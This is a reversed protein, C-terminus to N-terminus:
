TSRGTRAGAGLGPTRRSRPRRPRGPSPRERCPARAAPRRRPSARPAGPPPRSRGYGSSSSRRRVTTSRAAARRARRPAFPRARDCRCGRRGRPAARRAARPRRRREGRAGVGLHDGGQQGAVVRRDGVRDRPRHLPERAGVGDHGDCVTREDREAIGQPDPREREPPDAVVPDDGGLRAREVEDAGLDDAVDLRALHDPDVLVPAVRRLGHRPAAAGRADELVDVEGAGVGDEVAGADMRRAHPHALAEGLLRGDVGVEHHRDGVRARGGRDAERLARAKRVLLPQDLVAVDAPREDLGVLRQTALPDLQLEVREGLDLPPAEHDDVVGDDAAVRHAGQDLHEKRGARGLHM